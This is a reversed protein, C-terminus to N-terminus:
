IHQCFLSSKARGIQCGARVAVALHTSFTAVDSGTSLITQQEQVIYLFFDSGTQLQYIDM